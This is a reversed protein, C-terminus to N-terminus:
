LNYIAVSWETCLNCPLISLIWYLWYVSYLHLTDVSFETTLVCLVPTIYRCLVWYDTCLTCSYYVSLTSLLWYVSYLLLIDGTYETTLVCLVPTIYGCYDNCLTCSYYVWLTYKTTLVCLVPTIYGCLILPWYVSYLLLIDM